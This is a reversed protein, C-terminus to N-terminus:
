GVGHGGATNDGTGSHQLFLQIRDPFVERPHTGDYGGILGRDELQDILRAARTYGVRLRRQLLSASAQNYDLVTRAADPLLPDAESGKEIPEALSQEFASDQPPRDTPRTEAILWHVVREVEEDSVFCGQVRVPKPEGPPLFLMDGKGLLREAGSQDLITRSDVSSSVAFSIRAPINAKILGTVVDVSPRQTAVVLHIGTARAMAALRNISEEVEQPATMMLDALEDIIVVIMPLFPYGEAQLSPREQVISNYRALDRAGLEAFKKYRTEMEVVVQRLARAARKPDTVVPALLHPLGNYATLEVMKPDILLLRLRDAAHSYLLSLIMSNISVSKGAGTAGAVLLHPMPALDAVVPRGGVDKGLALPLLVERKVFADSALVERLTVIQTQENPVELGVASKGPIPAEIRVDRAALALALDDSLASIRSVKVGPAPQIEFRTVTPGATVQTIKAEVGFSRLTEAIAEAREQLAEASERRDTVVPPNLLDIPPLMKPEAISTPEPFHIVVRDQSEEDKSDAGEWSATQKAVQKPSPSPVAKAPAAAESRTKGQSSAAMGHTKKEGQRQLAGQHAHRRRGIAEVLRGMGMRIGSVSLRALRGPSFGTVFAIGVAAAFWLAIRTGAIDFLYFFLATVGAGALGGGLALAPNKPWAILRHWTTGLVNAPTGIHRNIVLDYTAFGVLCGLLILVGWLRLNWHLPERTWILYLGWAILLLAGLGYWDGLLAHLLWATTRGVAGFAGLAVVGVLVFILGIVEMRFTYFSRRTRKGAAASKRQAKAVLDGM